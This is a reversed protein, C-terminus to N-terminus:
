LVNPNNIYGSLSINSVSLVEKAVFDYSYVGLTYTSGTGSLVAIISTGLFAIDIINTSPLASTIMTVLTLQAGIPQNYFNVTTGDQSLTAIRVGTGSVFTKTSKTITSDTSASNTGISLEQNATILGDEWNDSDTFMPIEVGLGTLQGQREGTLLVMQDVVNFSIQYENSSFDRVPKDIIFVGLKNWVADVGNELGVYIKIRKDLWIKGNYSVRMNDIQDLFTSKSKDIPVCLSISGSRRITNNANATISGGTATGELTDVVQLDTNLLEIKIKKRRLLTNQSNIQEQTLDM